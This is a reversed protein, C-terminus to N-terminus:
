VSVDERTHNVPSRGPVDRGPVERSADWNGWELQEARLPPILCSCLVLVVFSVRPHGISTM